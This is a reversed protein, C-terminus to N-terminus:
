YLLSCFEDVKDELWEWRKLGVVWETPLQSYGFRAGLMAGVLAGNTDADGGELIVDFLIRKFYDTESQPPVYRTFCYLAKCLSSYSSSSSSFMTPLCSNVLDKYYSQLQEKTITDPMLFLSDSQPAILISKNTEIVNRVLAELQDHTSLSSLFSTDNNNNSPTPSHNVQIEM